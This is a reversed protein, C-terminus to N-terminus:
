FRNGRSRNGVSIPADEDGLERSRLMRSPAAAAHHAEGLLLIATRENLGSGAAVSDAVTAALEPNFSLAVDRRAFPRIWAERHVPSGLAARSTPRPCAMRRGPILGP